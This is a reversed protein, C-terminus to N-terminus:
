ARAAARHLLRLAARRAPRQRHPDRHGARRRRRAGAAQGLGRRADDHLRGADGEKLRAFSCFMCSAVCVNTANIHFNRNFYTRDGHLRERVENALAGVELLNPHQFLAVGDEACRSAADRVKDRIRPSSRSM